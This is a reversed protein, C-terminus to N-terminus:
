FSQSGQEKGGAVLQYKQGAAGAELKEQSSEHKECALHPSPPPPCGPQSKDQHGNFSVSTAALTGETGPWQRM